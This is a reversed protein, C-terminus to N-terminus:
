VGLEARMRVYHPIQERSLVGHVEEFAVVSVQAVEAGDKTKLAAGLNSHLVLHVVLFFSMKWKGTTM